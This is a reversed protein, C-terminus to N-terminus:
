TEIKNQQTLMLMDLDLDVDPDTRILVRQYDM